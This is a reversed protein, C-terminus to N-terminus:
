ITQFTVILMSFTWQVNKFSGTSCHQRKPDDLSEGSMVISCSCNRM